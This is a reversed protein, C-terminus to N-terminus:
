DNDAPNERELAYEIDSILKELHDAEDAELNGATKERLMVLDDLLMQANPLNKSRTKTLPNEIMGLSIMAQFSLRTAFLRFNGGPLPVDRARRPESM